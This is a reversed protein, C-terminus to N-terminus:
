AAHAAGQRRGLYAELVTADEQVLATPGDYIKRGFNLVVTHPCLGRVLSMDHEVVLMAVGTASVRHLFAALEGTERPNLGAAPEDLLLLKPRPMLARVVEIRKRVGYPLNAVVEGPYSGLGFDALM